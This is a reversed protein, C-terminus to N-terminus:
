TKGAQRSGENPAQSLWACLLESRGHKEINLIEFGGKKAYFSAGALIAAPRLGCDIIKQPYKNEMSLFKEVDGNRLFDALGAGAEGDFPYKGSMEGRESPWSLDVGAVIGVPKGIEECVKAVVKGFLFHDALSMRSVFIAVVRPRHCLTLYYLPVLAASELIKEHFHVPLGNWDGAYGIKEALELDNDFDLVLDMGYDIFNGRPHPDINIMFGSPDPDPHCSFVLLTEPKLRGIENGIAVLSGITRKVSPPYEGVGMGPALQPLCPLIASFIIM